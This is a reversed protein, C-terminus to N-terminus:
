TVSTASELGRAQTEAGTEKKSFFNAGYRVIITNETRPPMAYQQSILVRPVDTGRAELTIVPNDKARATPQKKEKPSAVDEVIPITMEDSARALRAKERPPQDVYWKSIAAGSCAAISNEIAFLEPEPALTAPMVTTPLSRSAKPPLPSDRAQITAIPAIPAM